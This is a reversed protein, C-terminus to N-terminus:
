SAKPGTARARRYQEAIAVAFNLEEESFERKEDFFIRLIGVVNKRVGSQNYTHFQAQLGLSEFLNYMYNAAAENGATNYYRTEFDDLAQWVAVYESQSVDAVM